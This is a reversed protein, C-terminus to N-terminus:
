LLERVKQRLVNAIIKSGGPSGKALAEALHAVQRGKIRPPQPPENPDVVAEIVVPGKTALAEDLIPGCRRPDEITFGAAGFARAAAAFDIPTLDCAYEPNGLFVMQEWRIM